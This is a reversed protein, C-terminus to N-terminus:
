KCIFLIVITNIFAILITISCVLAILVSSDASDIPGSKNMDQAQKFVISEDNSAVNQLIKVDDNTQIKESKSFSSDTVTALDYLLNTEETTTPVTTTQLAQFYTESGPGCKVQIRSPKQSKLGLAQKYQCAFPMRKYCDEVFLWNARKAVCSGQSYTESDVVLWPWWNKEDARFRIPENKYDFWNTENLHKIGTWFHNQKGNKLDPSVALTEDRNFLVNNLQKDLEFSDIMALSYGLSTCYNQAEYWTLLKNYVRICTNDILTFDKPCNIMQSPSVKIWFGRRTLADDSVFKFSVINDQTKTKNTSRSQIINTFPALTSCIKTENGIMLYDKTCTPELESIVPYDVSSSELDFELLEIQPHGSTQISCKCDQNNSYEIPYNPSNIYLFPTGTLNHSDLHTHPDCMNLTSAAPICEYIIFVYDSYSKCSHLYQSDLSITCTSMGNCENAVYDVNVMCDKPSFYCTKEQEPKNLISNLFKPHPQQKAPRNGYHSWAISILDAGCNLQLNNPQIPTSDPPQNGFPDTQIKTCKSVERWATCSNAL